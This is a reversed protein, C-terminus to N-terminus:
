PRLLLSVLHNGDQQRNATIPTRLHQSGCCVAHIRHLHRLYAVTQDRLRPPRPRNSRHYTRWRPIRRYRCPCDLRGYRVMRLDMLHGVSDARTQTSPLLLSVPAWKPPSLIASWHYQGGSGTLM